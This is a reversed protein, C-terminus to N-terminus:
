SNAISEIVEDIKDLDQILHIPFTFDLMHELNIKYKQFKNAPYTIRAKFNGLLFIDWGKNHYQDKDIYKAIEHDIFDQLNQKYKKIFEKNYKKYLEKFIKGRKNASIPDSQIKHRLFIIKETLDIEYDITSAKYSNSFKELEKQNLLGTEKLQIAYFQMIRFFVETSHYSRQNIKLWKLSEILNHTTIYKQTLLIDLTNNNLFDFTNGLSLKFTPFLPYLELLYYQHLMSDLYEKASLNKYKAANKFYSYTEPLVTFTLDIYTSTNQIPTDYNIFNLIDLMNHFNKKNLAKMFMNLQTDYLNADAQILEKIIYLKKTFDKRVNIKIKHM